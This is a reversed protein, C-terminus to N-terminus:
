RLRELLREPRHRPAGRDPRLQRRLGRVKNLREPHHIALELGIIGGDSWGVISAKDIGLHDMLGLVDYAM